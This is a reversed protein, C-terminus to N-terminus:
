AAKRMVKPEAEPPRFAVAGAGPTPKLQDDRRPAPESPQRYNSGVVTLNRAPAPALAAGSKNTQMFKEGWFLNSLLM